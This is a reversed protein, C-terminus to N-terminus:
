QDNHTSAYNSQRDRAAILDQAAKKQEADTLVADPRAPPMDHVAPYAPPTSPREPTNAPLGGVSTPLDSFM